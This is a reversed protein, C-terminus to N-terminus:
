KVEVWEGKTRAFISNDYMASCVVSPLYFKGKYTANLLVRFRKVKYSKIGFFMDVRDDRYDTYDTPASEIDIGSFLRTNIIEWGAPFIQSLAINEYDISVDPNRVQVYAVFDTGQEIVKPDIPNGSLDTYKVVLDLNSNIANTTDVIPRGSLKVSLLCQSNSNNEVEFSFKENSVNMKKNWLGKDSEADFDKGNIEVDLDLNGDGLNFKEKFVNLAYLCWSTTQTSMWKNSSLEDSLIKSLQIAKDKNKTYAYVVLNIAKDRLSSGFYYYGRNDKMKSNQIVEDAIESRGQLSYAGALMLTETRSEVKNKLRNMASYDPKGAFALVFLRYAQLFVRRDAINMENSAVESVNNLLPQYLTLPVNYGKEKAISLFHLAYISGWESSYSGNPWYSLSGNYLQFKNLRDIAANINNDVDAKYEESLDLFNSLFLQPFVSSVTQEVCGYPYTTLYQLRNSIDVNGPTYISVDLTNTGNSGFPVLDIDLEGKAPIVKTIIKDQIPNPNRVEFEVDWSSKYFGSSANITIKATGINSTAKVKFAVMKEGEQDFNASIKRDGIVEVDGQTTIKVNATKIKPNMSFVSVPVEVEENVSLIRPFTGLVMLPTKVPVSKEVKGYAEKSAAVVMVRVAGIYNPMTLKHKQTDGKGLEFPGLVTIVPKFRNVSKDEEGGIADMDGGISLLNRIQGTFAGCVDNYIDWSKLGLAEKRFFANWPNPTRYNTLGLLGEEVVALTYTMKQGNKEKVKVTYKKNPKLSSNVEVEPYLHSDADEILVPIVGYLRLPADNKKGDYKQILDISVYVNPLMDKDAIFSYTNTGDICNVVEQRIMENGMSISVLAKSAANAPFKVDITEGVSYKQKETNFQLESAAGPIERGDRSYYSPWDFYVVKGSVHKSSEDIVQILIRGWNNKNVKVAVKGKGNKINVTKSLIPITSSRSVYTGLNGGEYDYWWSWDIKYLVVKVKNSAVKKGFPDLNIIPFIVEKDTEYANWYSSGKECLIGAYSKFPSYKVKKQNISFDGSKEFVRSVFTANMMGPASTNNSKDLAINEEGSQNLEGDFVNKDFGYFRSAPDLFSYKSYEKFPTRAKSLSMKIKAELGSAKVGNYYQSYVKISQDKYGLIPDSPFDLDIKLRNPKVFELRLNKSFTVSGVNVVAKWTGTPDKARTPLKFLYLKGENDSITKESHLSGRSNYLKCTVPFDKPLNSKSDNLVFGLFLTDGPRWVGREGYIFGKLGDDNRDGDVEFHSYSLARGDDLRMWIHNDGKSAKVAFAQAKAELELIGSANTKGSTLVQNQLSLLSVEVNPEPEGKGLASTYIYYKNDEFKKCIIGMDTVILNKKPFRGNVYYSSTCPNDEDRWYYGEPYYNEYYDSDDWYKTDKYLGEPDFEEKAVIIEDKNACDGYYAYKKKFSIRIQYINGPENKALQELSVSYANNTTWDDENDGVLVTARYIPRGVYRISNNGTFSENMQLFQFVNDHYVKVVEIDVARLGVAKFPVIVNGSTPILPRDDILEVKPKLSYFKIDFSQDADLKKGGESKIGSDIVIKYNGVLISKPKCILTNRDIRSTVGNTNLIRVLGQLDQKSDLNDSFQFVVERGDVSHQIIKFSGKYPIAQEIEGKDDSSVSSGDWKIMVSFSDNKQSIKDSTFAVKKVGIKKFEVGYNQSGDTISIISSLKEDPIPNSSILMGKVVFGSGDSTKELKVGKIQLYQKITELDFSVDDFSNDLDGLHITAKYQTGAKLEETPVFSIVSSNVLEVNGSVKPKISILKNIDGSYNELKSSVGQDLLFRISENVSIKNSSIKVLEKSASDAQNNNDTCSVFTMLFCIFLMRFRFALLPKDGRCLTFIDM